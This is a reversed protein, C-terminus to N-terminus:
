KDYLYFGKDYTKNPTVSTAVYDNLCYNIEYDTLTTALKSYNNVINNAM